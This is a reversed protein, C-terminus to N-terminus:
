LVVTIRQKLPLIGLLRDLSERAVLADTSDTSPDRPEREARDQAPVPVLHRRRGRDRALNVLTKRVYAEPSAARGWHRALRLLAEQLVDEADGHDLVLLRTFRLLRDGARGVFATFEAQEAEKM